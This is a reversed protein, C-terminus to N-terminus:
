YSVKSNADMRQSTKDYFYTLLTFNKDEYNFPKPLPQPNRQRVAKSQICRVAQNTLLVKTCPGNGLFRGFGIRVLSAM